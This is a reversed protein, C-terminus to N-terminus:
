GTTSKKPNRIPKRRKPSDESFSPSVLSPSVGGCPWSEPRYPFIFIFFPPIVGSYTKALRKFLGIHFAHVRPTRMKKMYQDLWLNHTRYSRLYYQNRNLHVYWM